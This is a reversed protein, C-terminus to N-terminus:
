HAPDYELATTEFRAYPFAGAAPHWWAEARGALRQGGLERYAGVPTNWSTRVFTAGDRSARLRDDSVFDALAGDAGFVLTAHVVNGANSWTVDVSDGRTAGWVLSTDLLGAPALVCLDNLLTVTEARTMEPGSAQLVPFAGLVQIRMGAERGVYRHLGSVPLGRMTGHLWFLRAPPHLASVQEVDIPIWPEAPSGRLTGHFRVRFTRPVPRGLAGAIRLYGAVPAPLRALDAEGVPAGAPSAGALLAASEREFRARLNGPGLAVTLWAAVVAALAVAVFLALLKM